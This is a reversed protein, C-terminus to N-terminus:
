PSKDHDIYADRSYWCTGNETSSIFNSLVTLDGDTLLFVRSLNSGFTLPIYGYVYM